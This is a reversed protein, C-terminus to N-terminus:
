VILMADGYSFFRYRHQIAESYVQLIQERGSTQDPAAFACILMLLTSKPLHFNTLLADVVHFPSPPSIFLRTRGSFECPFNPTQRAASELARLSTTGVAIVRGGRAKTSSIVNATSQPISFREEHMPHESLFETKVPAFTGLGVHLTIHAINAGRNQLSELLAPTFHLGATPAAVSGPLSAFITQYRELDETQVQSRKIYPPLPVEGLDQLNNFLRANHIHDFRLLCHGEQNKDIVTATWESNQGTKSIQSESSPEIPASVPIQTRISSENRLIEFRTTQRFKKGPKTLCWWTNPEVEELLFIEAPSGNLASKARLRAPIVASNNLILLDNPRIWNPLDTLGQHHRNSTARDLVLLRSADRQKCPVQAILDPPLCYDFDRTLV